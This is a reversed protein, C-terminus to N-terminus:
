FDLNTLLLQDIDAELGIAVMCIAVGRIVRLALLLCERARSSQGSPGHGAVFCDVLDEDKVIL